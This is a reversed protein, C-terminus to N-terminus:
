ACTRASPPRPLRVSNIACARWSKLFRPQGVRRKSFRSSRTACAGPRRNRCSTQVDNTAARHPGPSPCLVERRPRASDESGFAKPHPTPSSPPRPEVAAPPSNAARGGGCPLGPSGGPAQTTWNETRIRIGAASKLAYLRALTESRAPARTGSASRRWGTSVATAHFRQRQGIAAPFPPAM